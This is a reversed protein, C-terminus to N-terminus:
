VISRFIEKRSMTLAFPIEKCSNNVSISVITADPVRLRVVSPAGSALKADVAAASLKLARRDYKPTLKLREQEAKLEKYESLRQTVEAFETQLRQSERYHRHYDLVFGAAYDYSEEAADLALWFPHSAVSVVSRIAGSVLSGRKGVALSILGYATFQVLPLRARERHRILLGVLGVVGVALPIAAGTLKVSAALGGLLAAAILDRWRQTQLWVYGAWIALFGFFGLAGEILAVGALFKVMPMSLYLAAALWAATGGIVNSVDSFGHRSLISTAASSRYGSQCIILTPRTADLVDLRSELDALQINLAGPAHGALSEAPRRVDVM